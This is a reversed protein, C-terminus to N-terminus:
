IGRKPVNLVRALAIVDGPNQVLKLYALLDRVERREYFRTGGIIQYPIGERRLADELARSQANTRYLIVIDKRRADTEALLSRIRDRVRLGEDEDDEAWWLEIPSGGDRQSWLNKGKRRRNHAIVENAARLILSTSRYNQELRVLTSGPFYEEFGLMNEVTAGRWSYISQDDDGVACLNGHVASLARIMVLQLPNTDQFEDVLVHEFREAYREQVDRHEEFLEVTRGILDDFDMAGIERLRQGYRQYVDAVTEDRPTIAQVRVQEPTLFENKHRSIESAVARPSFQKPDAKMDNLIQKVLARQDDADYITFYRDYGIREAERRLIRVGTAHFTGIWSRGESGPVMRHVRGQMERAAKNTFTFALIRHSPVRQEQTLWAIRTTLVRTKGSGAGAIVLLPGEPHTVAARQEPNLTDLM